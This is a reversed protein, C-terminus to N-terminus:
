PNLTQLAAKFDESSIIELYHGHYEKYQEETWAHKDMMFQKLTKGSTNAVLTDFVFISAVNGRQLGPNM